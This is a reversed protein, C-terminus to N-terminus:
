PTPQWVKGLLERLPDAADMAGLGETILEDDDLQHGIYALLFAHLERDRRVTRVLEQLKQVAMTLRARSPLLDPGYAVDIMEPNTTLLRRLSLGAPVYLGAGLTSHGVGAMAYPHGPAFRLAREFRREAWFYEGDRLLEEGSAM